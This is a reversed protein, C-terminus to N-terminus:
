SEAHHRLDQAPMDPMGHHIYTTSTLEHHTEDGPLWYYRGTFSPDYGSYSPIKPSPDYVLTPDEDGVEHPPSSMEHIEDEHDGM